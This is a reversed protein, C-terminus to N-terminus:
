GTVANCGSMCATYDTEVANGERVGLVGVVLVVKLTVRTGRGGSGTARSRSGGRSAGGSSYAHARLNYLASGSAAM